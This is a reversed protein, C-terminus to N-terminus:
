TGMAPIGRTTREFGALSPNRGRGMSSVATRHVGLHRSFDISCDLRCTGFLALSRGVMGFADVMRVPRRSAM